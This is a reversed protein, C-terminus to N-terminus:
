PTTGPQLDDALKIRFEDVIQSVFETKRKRVREALVDQLVRPRVEIFDPVRASVNSTLLVLHKGFSSTFVGRWRGPDVELGFLADTMEPGFHGTLDEHTREVYNVQYPFREGFATAGTLPVQRRNLDALTEEALATAQADGHRRTSFFVHAFSVQAPVAYDAQHRQHFDALEVDSPAALGSTVGEAMFEMKQVLRQKIVYDDAGLGMAIASRYLAEERVFTKVVDTLAEDSLSALRRQAEEENFARTRLQIFELLAARDVRITHPDDDPRDPNFFRWAGFLLAGLVIFHFLPDSFFRKM